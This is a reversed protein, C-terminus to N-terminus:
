APPDVVIPKRPNGVVPRTMNAVEKELKQFSNYISDAVYRIKEDIKTQMLDSEKMARVVAQLEEDRPVNFDLFQHTTKYLSGLEETERQAFNISKEIKEMLTTIEKMKNFAHAVLDTEHYIYDKTGQQDFDEPEGM